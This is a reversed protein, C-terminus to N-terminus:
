ENKGGTEKSKNRLKMLTQTLLFKEHPEVLLFSEIISFPMFRARLPVNSPKGRGSTVVVFPVKEKMRKVFAGPNVNRGDTTKLKDIIGQHIILIDSNNVQNDLSFEGKNEGITYEYNEGNTTTIVKGLPVKIGGKEFELERDNREVFDAVREDIIVMKLLGNEILQLVLQKKQYKDSPLNSLLGFHISSGSLSEIYTGGFTKKITAHRTYVIDGDETGKQFGLENALSLLENDIKEIEEERKEKRLLLPVTCPETFKLVKSFIEELEPLIEDVRDIEADILRELEDALASKPSVYRQNMAREYGDEIQEVTLPQNIEQLWKRLEYIIQWKVKEGKLRELDSKATLEKGRLNVYVTPKKEKALKRIWKKYLEIKFDGFERNLMKKFDECSLVIVRNKLVPHNEIQAKLSNNATEIFLRYPLKELEVDWKNDRDPLIKKLLNNEGDDILVMFAFNLDMNEQHIEKHYVSNENARNTNLKDKLKNLENTLKGIILVEKPKSIKFEYSLRYTKKSDDLRPIAKIIDLVEKNEEGIEAISKQQLFGSTIKMEMLGWNEKELSGARDIFSKKLKCNIEQHLPLKKDARNRLSVAPPLDETYRQGVKENKDLVNDLDKYVDSVNDWTRFMIFDNEPKDEVEITLELNKIERKEEENLSAWEHKAFNRIINELIVYVAHNGIIGGPIALLYDKFSSDSNELDPSIIFTNDKDKIKVIIGKDKKAKWDYAILGEYKSINELLTKQRYFRKMLDKIFWVSYSWQPFQTSIQAIFDMRQQIYKYFIQNERVNLDLPFESGISALVHSGINHSMNRAMIAAIASRLAHTRMEQLYLGFHFPAFLRNVMQSLMSHTHVELFGESAFVIGSVAYKEFFRAPIYYLYQWSDDFLRNWILSQCFHLPEVLRPENESDNETRFRRDIENTANELIKGGKKDNSIMEALDSIKDALTKFIEGEYQRNCHNKVFGEIENLQHGVMQIENLSDFTVPVPRLIEPFKEKTVSELDPLPSSRAWSLILTQTRSFERFIIRTMPEIFGKEEFQPSKLFRSLFHYRNLKCRDESIKKSPYRHLIRFTENFEDWLLFGVWNVNFTDLLCPEVVPAFKDRLKKIATEPHLYLNGIEDIVFHEKNVKSNLFGLFEEEIKQFCEILESERPNGEM